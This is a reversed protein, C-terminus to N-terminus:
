SVAITNVNTARVAQELHRWNHYVVVRLTDGLRLKILNTISIGTKTKTLNVESALDLLELLETQDRLFTNLISRDASQAFNIPNASKFTSIQKMDKGPKMGNAFYNGMRSSTFVPEAVHKSANIRKKIEPHYYESYHNLHALCDLASWSEADPRRALIDDPMSALDKAILINQETRERLKTLLEESSRPQMPM